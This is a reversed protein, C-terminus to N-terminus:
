KKMLWRKLVERVEEVGTKKVSSFIQITINKHKELAKQAKLLANQAPGRKLKDSKTLLLHLPLNSHVAWDIMMLDFDKMDHRIDSLLILGVLSERQRLYRELELQWKNKIKLPVKAYGYGPLDAIYHLATVEFFNILQTRGPTKSIRALRSQTTITNIASSKGANSRGAFAVEARSDAPCDKLTAASTAFHTQKFNMTYSEQLDLGNAAYSRSNQSVTSLTV